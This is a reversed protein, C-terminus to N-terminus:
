SVIGTCVRLAGELDMSQMATELQDLQVQPLSSLAVRHEAFVELVQLNDAQLLPIIHTQLIEKAAMTGAATPGDRGIKESAGLTAMAQVLAQDALQLVPGLAESQQLIQPVTSEQKCMKELAALVAALRGLGLTAANGKM